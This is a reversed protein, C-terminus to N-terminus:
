VFGFREIKGWLEHKRARQDSKNRSAPNEGIPWWGEQLRISVLPHLSIWCTVGPWLVSPLLKLTPFDEGCIVQVSWSHCMQLAQSQTLSATEWLLLLNTSLYWCRPNVKSSLLYSYHQLRCHRGGGWFFFSWCFLVALVPLTSESCSVSGSTSNFNSKSWNMSLHLICYEPSCTFFLADELLRNAIYLYCRGTTM